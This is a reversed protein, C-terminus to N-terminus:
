TRYDVMVTESNWLEIICGVIGICTSSVIECFERIGYWTQSYTVVTGKRSCLGRSFRRVAWLDGFPLSSFYNPRIKACLFINLRQFQKFRRQPRVEVCLLFINKHQQPFNIFLIYHECIV